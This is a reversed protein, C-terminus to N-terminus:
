PLASSYTAAAAPAPPPYGPLHGFPAQPFSYGNPPPHQLGNGYPAVSGDQTLPDGGPGPNSGSGLSSHYGYGSGYAPHVHDQPPYLVSSTPPPSSLNVDSLHLPSSPHPPPLISPTPTLPDPRSGHGTGFMSTASPPVLRQMTATSSPHGDGGEHQSFFSESASAYMSGHAGEPTPSFSQDEQM